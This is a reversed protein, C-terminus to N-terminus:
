RRLIAECERRFRRSSRYRSVGDGGANTVGNERLAELVERVIKKKMEGVDEKNEGFYRNEAM